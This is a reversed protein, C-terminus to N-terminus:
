CRLRTVCVAPCSDTWDNTITAISLFAAILKEEVMSSSVKLDFSQPLHRDTSIAAMCTDPRNQQALMLRSLYPLYCVSPSMFAGYFRDFPHGVEGQTLCAIVVLM